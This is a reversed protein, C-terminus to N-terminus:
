ESTNGYIRDRDAKNLMVVSETPNEVKIEYDGLIKDINLNTKASVYYSYDFIALMDKTFMGERVNYKSFIRKAEEEPILGLGNLEDCKNMCAVIKTNKHCLGRIQKFWYYKNNFSLQSNIDCMVVIRDYPINYEENDTILRDFSYKYQGPFVTIKCNGIIHTTVETSAVYKPEFKGNILRNVLTTKGVGGDGIVLINKFVKITM